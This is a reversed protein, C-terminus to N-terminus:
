LCLLWNFNFDRQSDCGLPHWIQRRMQGMMGTKSQGNLFFAGMQITYFYRHHYCSFYETPCVSAKHRDLWSWVLSAATTTTDKFAPSMKVCMNDKQITALFLSSVNQGIFSFHASRFRKTQLPLSHRCFTPFFIILGIRSWVRSVGVWGGSVATLIGWRRDHSRMPSDWCQHHQVWEMRCCHKWVSFVDQVWFSLWM